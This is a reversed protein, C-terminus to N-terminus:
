ELEVAIGAREYKVQYHIGNIVLDGGDRYSLNAKDNQKVGFLEAMQWEFCEGCNEIYTEGNKKTRIRCKAKLEEVTCLVFSDIANAMLYDRKAKSHRYKIVTQGKSYTPKDSFIIHLGNLDLQILYCEVSGQWEVAIIYYHTYATEWHRILEKRYKITPKKM